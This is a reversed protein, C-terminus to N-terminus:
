NKQDIKFASLWKIAENVDTFMKTPMLQQTLGIFFNAVMKGVNSNTLIAVATIAKLPENGAYYVRAERSMSKVNSMDILFPRRIGGAIKLNIATNEKAAALTHYEQTAAIAIIIGEDNLWTKGSSTVICNQPPNLPDSM